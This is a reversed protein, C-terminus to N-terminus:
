DEELIRHVQRYITELEDRTKYAIVIRGSELGGKLRTRVGFARHLEEQFEAMEPPLAKAPREEKQPRAAIAELQRVSLNENLVREALERKKAVTGVGALVRGHGASLRGEKILQRIDEPLNLLRLLNAVSPRSKGIRKAVAEQTYRFNEMLLKIAEAEEIPNLDERQLNEILAIELQEQESFDRVIAPIVNLGAMQTARFRREGAVLQFRDQSRKVLIPQIVGLEKISDALEKLMEEDFSKRPQYPNADIDAVSLQIVSDKETEAQPFLADLGRGLAKKAM